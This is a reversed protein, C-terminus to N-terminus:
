REYAKQSWNTPEHNFLSLFFNLRSNDKLHVFCPLPVSESVSPSSPTTAPTPPPAMGGTWGEALHRCKVM